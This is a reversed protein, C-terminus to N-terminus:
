HIIIQNSVYLDSDNKYYLSGKPITCEVIISDLIYMFRMEELRKRSGASHFGQEIYRLNSYISMDQEEKDDLAGENSTETMVTTYLEKKKYPFSKFFSTGDLNLLKYVTIDELAEKPETWNTIMCM